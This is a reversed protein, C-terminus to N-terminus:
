SRAFDAARDGSLIIQTREPGVGMLVIPVDLFDSIFDLNINMFVIFVCDFNKNVNVGKSVRPFIGLNEGNVLLTIAVGYAYHRKELLSTNNKCQRKTFDFFTNTYPIIKHSM